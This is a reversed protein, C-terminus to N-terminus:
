LSRSLRSITAERFICLTFLKCRRFVKSPPVCILGTASFILISDSQSVMMIVQRSQVNLQYEQKRAPAGEVSMEGSKSFLHGWTRRCWEKCSAVAAYETGKERNSALNNLLSDRGKFTKFTGLSDTKSGVFAAWRCRNIRMPRRGFNSFGRPSSDPLPFPPRPGGRLWALPLM